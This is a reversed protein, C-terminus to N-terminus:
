GMKEKLRYYTTIVSTYYQMMWDYWIERSYETRQKQNNHRIIFQNVVEFILKDHSNKNVEYENNLLDKLEERLPELIDSLINIAKKKSEENANFRYFM